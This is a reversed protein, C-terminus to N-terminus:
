ASQRLILDFPMEVRRGNPPGEGALRELLLQAARAGLREPYQAITTLPPSVLRAAPIDDFGVIAVDHPVDLGAERLAAVAGMAMLDNAAFIASPREALRLLEQAAAYGGAESFDAGRVLMRDFLLGQERLAETYGRVRDERPPTGAEGAVMGIRRHGRAILYTVATRAAAVCDISLTDLPEVGHPPLEPTLAVVAVGSEVLAACEALPVRFPTIIVGDVRGALASRLCKREKELIGDTNYTILDYGEREAVDQIGREFAPYFPNTIDPIIGAVTSTRRRRLSRASHDPLYGLQSIAALVRQRTGPAVPAHPDGSLVYSVVPQSVAALRAV